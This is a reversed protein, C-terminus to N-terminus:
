RLSTIEKYAKIASSVVVQTMNVAMNAKALALTVDHPDVSEPDILFSELKKESDQVVSSVEQLKQAFLSHFETNSQSISIAGSEGNIMSPLAFEKGSRKLKDLNGWPLDILASSLGM